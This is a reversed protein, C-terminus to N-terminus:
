LPVREFVDTMTPAGGADKLAFQVLPTVGDQAYVTLVNSAIKWRGTEVQKVIAVQAAIDDVKVDVVGIGTAAALAQTAASELSALTTNGSPGLLAWVAAALANVDVGATAVTETKIPQSYQVLVNYAGVTAAIPDDGSDTLLVGGSVTLKHDAEQPHVHWGNVLFAYTTIYVGPSIEDGGVCEFAHDYGGNGLLVWDKWRSYMDRVDVATTGPTLVICKCDGQFQYGM